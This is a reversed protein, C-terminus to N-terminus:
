RVFQSFFQFDDRQATQVLDALVAGDQLIALIHDDDVAAHGEGVLIHVAHIEHDGIKGVQHCIGVLELAEEDGMTVLVVDAGDGVGHLLDIAGDVAGGHGVAQDLQLQGHEELKLKPWILSFCSSCPRSLFTLSMVWLGPSVTM